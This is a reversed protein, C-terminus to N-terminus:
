FDLQILGPFKAPNIRFAVYISEIVRVPNIKLLIPGPGRASGIM